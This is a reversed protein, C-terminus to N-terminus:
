RKVVFRIIFRQVRIMDKERGTKKEKERGNKKLSRWHAIGKKGYYM